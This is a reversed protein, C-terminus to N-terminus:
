REDDALIIYLWRRFRQGVSAKNLMMRFRIRGSSTLHELVGHCTHVLCVHVSCPIRRLGCSAVPYNINDPTYAVHAEVNWRVEHIVGDM